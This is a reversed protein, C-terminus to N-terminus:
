WSADAASPGSTPLAMHSPFPAAQIAPLVTLAGAGPGSPATPKVRRVGDEALLWGVRRVFGLNQPKIPVVTVVRTARGAVGDVFAQMLSVPAGPEEAYRRLVERSWPRMSSVISPWAPALVRWYLRSAGQPKAVRSRAMLARLRLDLPSPPRRGDRGAIRNAHRAILRRHLEDPPPCLCIITVTKASPVIALVPDNESRPQQLRRMTDYQVILRRHRGDPDSALAAIKKVNCVPWRRAEPLVARCDAPLRGAQWDDIFTSKGSAQAGAVIVLHGIRKDM